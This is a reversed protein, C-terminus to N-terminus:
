NDPLTVPRSPAALTNGTHTHVLKAVAGIDGAVLTDANIQEKGRLM